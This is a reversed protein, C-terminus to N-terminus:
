FLKCSASLRSLPRHESPSHSCPEGCPNPSSAQLLVSCHSPRPLSPSLFGESLRRVSFFRLFISGSAWSNDGRTSAARWTGM